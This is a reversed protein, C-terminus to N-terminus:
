IFKLMEQYDVEVSKNQADTEQGAEAEVVAWELGLEKAKDFVKQMPVTGTGLVLGTHGDGDKAHFLDTRNKYKELYEVANQGGSTVWLVDLEFWLEDASLKEAVIDLICKGDIKEFEKTHNHYYLRMGAKKIKPIVTRVKEVFEDISAMDNLPYSPIILRKCGLYSYFEIARDIDSFLEVQKIHTGSIELKYKDLLRKIEKEDRYISIGAFEVGEYGIKSLLKFAEDLNESVLNRISYIQVSKRM